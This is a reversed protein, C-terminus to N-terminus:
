ELCSSWEHNRLKEQLFHLMCPALFKVQTHLDSALDHVLDPNHYVQFTRRELLERVLVEVRNEFSENTVQTSLERLDHIAHNNQIGRHHKFAV